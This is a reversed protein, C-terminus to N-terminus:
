DENESLDVSIGNFRQEYHQMDKVLEIRANERENEIDTILDTAENLGQNLKQVKFDLQQCLEGHHELCHELKQTVQDLTDLSNRKSTRSKTEEELQEFQELEKDEDFDIKTQKPRTVLKAIVASGKKNEKGKTSSVSKPTSKQPNLMLNKCMQNPSASTQFSVWTLNDKSTQKKTFSAIQGIASKDVNGPAFPNVTSFISSTNKCKPSATSNKINKINETIFNRPKKASKNSDTSLKSSSQSLKQPSMQKMFLKGKRMTVFENNDAVEGLTSAPADQVQDQSVLLVKVAEKPLSLSKTHDSYHVIKPSTSQDEEAKANLYEETDSFNLSKSCTLKDTSNERNMTKEDSPAFNQPTCEAETQENIIESSSFTQYESISNNSAHPTSCTFGTDRSQSDDLFKFNHFIASINEIKNNDRLPTYLEGPIQSPLISTNWPLENDILMNPITSKNCDKSDEMQIIELRRTEKEKQIAITNEEVVKKLMNYGSFDDYPIQGWMKDYSQGNPSLNQIDATSYTSNTSVNEQSEISKQKAENMEVIVNPQIKVKPIQHIPLLPSVKDYDLSYLRQLFNSKTADEMFPLDNEPVEVSELLKLSEMLEVDQKNHAKKAAVLQEALAIQEQIKEELPRDRREQEKETILDTVNCHNKMEHVMKRNLITNKKKNPTSHEKLEEKVSENIPVGDNIDAKRQLLFEREEQLMEKILEDRESIESSQKQLQYEFELEIADEIVKDFDKLEEPQTVYEEVHNIAVDEPISLMPKVYNVQYVDSCNAQTRTLPVANRVRKYFEAISSDSCAILPSDSITLKESIIDSIEVSKPTVFNEPTEKAIELKLLNCQFKKLGDFDDDEFHHEQSKSSLKQYPSVLVPNVLPLNVEKPAFFLNRKIHRVLKMDSFIEDDNIYKKSAFLEELSKSRRLPVYRCESNPKFFSHSASSIPTNFGFHSLTRYPPTEQYNQSYNEMWMTASKSLQHIPAKNGSLWNYLKDSYHEESKPSLSDNGCMNVYLDDSNATNRKIMEDNFKNLSQIQDLTTYSSRPDHPTNCATFSFRRAVHLLM